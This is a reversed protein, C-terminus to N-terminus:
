VGDDIRKNSAKIMTAVKSPSSLAGVKPPNKLMKILIYLLRCSEAIEAAQTYRMWGVNTKQVASTKQSDCRLYSGFPTCGWEGSVSMNKSIDKLLSRMNQLNIVAEAIKSTLNVPILHNDHIEQLQGILLALNEVDDYGPLHLHNPKM